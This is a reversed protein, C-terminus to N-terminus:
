LGVENGDEMNWIGDVLFKEAMIIRVTLWKCRIASFYQKHILYIFILVRSYQIFNNFDSVKHGNRGM